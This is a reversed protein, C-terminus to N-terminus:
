RWDGFGMNKRWDWPAVSVYGHERDVLHVCGIRKVGNDEVEVLHNCEFERAGRKNDLEFVTGDNSMRATAVAPWEAVTVRASM